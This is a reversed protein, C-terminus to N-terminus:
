PSPPHTIRQAKETLFRLEFRLPEQTQTDILTVTVHSVRRRRTRIFMFGELSDNPGILGDPIEEQAFDARVERPLYPRDAPAATRPPPFVVRHLLALLWTATRRLMSLPNEYAHRATRAATVYRQDVSAKTFQYTRGSGNRIRIMLPQVGKRVLDPGFIDQAQGAELVEVSVSVGEQEAAVPHSELNRYLTKVSRGSACGASLLCLGLLLPVGRM